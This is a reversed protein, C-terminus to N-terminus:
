KRARVAHVRTCVCVCVCVRACARVRGSRSERKKWPHEGAGEPASEVKLLGRQPGPGAQFRPQRVAPRIQRRLSGAADSTVM